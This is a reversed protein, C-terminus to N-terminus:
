KKEYYLIEFISPNNISEVYEIDGIFVSGEELGPLRVDLNPFLDKTSASLTMNFHLDITDGKAIRSAFGAGYGYVSNVLVKALCPAKSCPSNLDPNLTKEISLIKGEIRCNGPPINATLKFSEATEKNCGSFILLGLLFLLKSLERM